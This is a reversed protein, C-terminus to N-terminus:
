YSFYNAIPAVPQSYVYNELSYFIIEDAQSRTLEPFRDLLYEVWMPRETGIATLQQGIYDLYEQKCCKPKESMLM